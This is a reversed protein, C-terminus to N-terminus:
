KSHSGTGSARDIQISDASNHKKSPLLSDSVTIPASKASQTMARPNSAVYLDLERQSRITMYRETSTSKVQVLGDVTIVKLLKKDRKLKIAEKFLAQNISTLNEGILLRAGQALNIHESLIPKKSIRSLYLGYFDSRIHKAMFKAIISPTPIFENRQHDRKYARVLNPIHTPNSTDFGIVQSISKFIEQLNEGKVHTIGNIKLEDIKSMRLVDDDTTSLRELNNGVELKLESIQNNINVEIHDVRDNIKALEENLAAKLEDGLSKIESKITNQVIQQIMTTQKELLRELDTATVSMTATTTAATTKKAQPSKTPSCLDRSKRKGAASSSRQRTKYRQGTASSSRSRNNPKLIPNTPASNM